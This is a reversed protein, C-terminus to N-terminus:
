ATRVHRTGLVSPRRAALMAERMLAGASGPGPTRRDERIVTPSPRSMVGYRLADAAHDDGTTDVDEPDTDDMVLAPLTRALYECDPHIVLWPKEDPARQLWHRLRQWGQKRAGKQNEARLLPVGARQFTEAMTEGSGTKDFMHGDAATYRIYPSGLVRTRRLIEKAAESALTQRFPWEHVVYLRGDPLCAIWLCVGPQNYGWDLCRFWQVDEGPVGLDQVHFDRRFEGFFQGAIADWDGDLMQRAREPGLSSLRKAYTTWTGDPDMLYPNDYLRSQIFGWDEAHYFPDEEVTVTRDIFWAKLWLTQAGGPNSTCRLVPLIGPLATRLRSAVGMVQKKSFTAAEDPYVAEYESSLYQDEDGEHECHGFRLWSPAQGPQEVVVRREDKLYRIPVGLGAMWAVERQADNLHNDVLETFKRRLLLLRCGPVTLLRRYADWRATYSKAGGAAGGFLLNPCASEHFRVGMPTPAYLVTTEASKGQGKTVSITLRARARLYQVIAPDAWGQGRLWAGWWAQDWTGAGPWARYGDPVAVARVVDPM